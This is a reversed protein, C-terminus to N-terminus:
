ELLEIWLQFHATASSRNDFHEQGYRVRGDILADCVDLFALAHAM